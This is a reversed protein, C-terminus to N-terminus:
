SRAAPSITRDADRPSPNTEFDVAGLFRAIGAELHQDPAMHDILVVIGSCVLAVVLTGTTAPLRVFRHNIYGAATTAVVVVAAIDFGNM